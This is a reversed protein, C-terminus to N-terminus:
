LHPLLRLIQDMGGAAAAVVVAVVELGPKFRSFFKKIKSKHKKQKVIINM